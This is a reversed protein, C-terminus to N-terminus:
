FHRSVDESFLEPEATRWLRIRLLNGGINDAASVVGSVVMAKCNVTDNPPSLPGSALTQVLNGSANLVEFTYQLQDSPVCTGGDYTTSPTSAVLAYVRLPTNSGAFPTILRTEMIGGVAQAMTEDSLATKVADPAVVAFAPLGVTSMCLALILSLCKKMRNM